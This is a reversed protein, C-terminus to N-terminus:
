AALQGCYAVYGSYGSNRPIQNVFGLRLGSQPPNFIIPLPTGPTRSTDAIMVYAANIDNFVGWLHRLVEFITRPRTAALCQPMLQTAVAQISQLPRTGNATEVLVLRDAPATPEASFIAHQGYAAGTVLECSRQTGLRNREEIFEFWDDPQLGLPRWPGSFLPCNADAPDQSAELRPDLPLSAAVRALVRRILVDNQAFATVTADDFGQALLRPMLVGCLASAGPDLTTPSM